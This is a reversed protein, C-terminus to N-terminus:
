PWWPKACFAAAAEQHKRDWCQLAEVLDFRQVDPYSGGAWVELVFRAACAEGHSMTPIRAALAAPHWSSVGPMGQLSPFSRALDTMRAAYHHPPNQVANM